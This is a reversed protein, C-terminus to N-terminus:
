VSDIAENYTAGADLEGLLVGKIVNDHNRMFSTRSFIKDPDIQNLKMLHRAYLYGSASNVDVYGFHKNKLDPLTEIGSDKRVIIYGSYTTKGNVKPTAIPTVKSKKELM